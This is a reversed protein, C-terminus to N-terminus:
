QVPAPNETLSKQMADCAARTEEIFNQQLLDIAVGIANAFGLADAGANVAALADERRTIGCIKVRTRRM